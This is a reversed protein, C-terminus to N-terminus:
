EVSNRIKRRRSDCQFERSVIRIESLSMEGDFVKHSILRTKATTELECVVNKDRYSSKVVSSKEFKRYRWSKKRNGKLNSTNITSYITNVTNDNIVTIIDHPADTKHSLNKLVTVEM